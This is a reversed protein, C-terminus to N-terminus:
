SKTIKKWVYGDRADNLVDTRRGTSFPLLTSSALNETERKDQTPSRRRGVMGGGHVARIVYYKFLSRQREPVGVGGRMLRM